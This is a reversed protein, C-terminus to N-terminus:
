FVQTTYCKVDDGKLNYILKDEDGLSISTLNRMAYGTMYPITKLSQPWVSDRFERVNWVIQNGSGISSIFGDEAEGNWLKEEIKFQGDVIIDVYNLLKKVNRAFMTFEMSRLVPNLALQLEKWTYIMIHFGYKKLEKCLIILNDIQDTPEGGGITIYKNPANSNIHQAMLVPDHSWLAKSNDWTSSNFCGPCPNGELAKMCGLFFVETRRNDDPSPGATKVEWNVERLKIGSMDSIRTDIQNLIKDLDM